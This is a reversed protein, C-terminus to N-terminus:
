QSYRCGTLRGRGAPQFGARTSDTDQLCRFLRALREDMGCWWDPAGQRAAAWRRHIALWIRRRPTLLLNFGVSRCGSDREPTRSRGQCNRWAVATKQFRDGTLSMEMTLVNNANFGPNVNRIALFTRILLAAGILLVLALSIESVVLLSRAKGQRFGTGARNSSDKLTSNLDPRSAGIAPFIGFLIGTLVSVGLTFALVRWDIGVAAGHEGVRPLNGPTMALLARVGLFGFLLGAAGGVTSLLVSETLLQRIIRGRGAGLAARIAFERRRGTARVLLLNAVNACAILLVMSVAGLLVLLSKRM